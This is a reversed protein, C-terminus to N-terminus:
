LVIQFVELEQLNFYQEGNNLEYGKIGEFSPTSSSTEHSKEKSLIPTDDAIYIARNKGFSPGNGEHCFLQNNNISNYIKRKNISFLFSNLDNKYSGSCDFGLETYGGFKSGKITHYIVLVKSRNDCKSHFISLGDGDKTARYLLNFKFHRNNLSQKLRNIVFDIEENTNIIKSDLINQVKNKNDLIATKELFNIKNELSLIKNEM